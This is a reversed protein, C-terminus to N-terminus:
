AAQKQRENYAGDFNIKVFAEPPYRWGIRRIPKVSYKDICGIIEDICKIVFEAIEKGTSVRNEHVRKNRAGWIAWIVCCFIICQSQNFQEFVWTLWQVWEGVCGKIWFEELQGYVKECM